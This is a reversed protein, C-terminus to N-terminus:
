DIEGDRLGTPLAAPRECSSSLAITKGQAATDLSAQMIDLVHYAMEGSARHDRKSAIASAMDAVGIGRSNTNYSFALPVPSWDGRGIKIKVEGGFTNPDPVSISGKTGYVEVFPLHTGFVDFSMILTGLPGSAFELASTIHTPTEVNVVKGYKKASTITRTKHTARAFGAVKKVPGLLNVLATLYYPGMDFMPGGGVEYYFEPDPHWSEHGPCTMFATAGLPTGIWGDDILKRATQIGAGLFTDPAAGVRLKKSKAASLIKKGEERTIAFPKEHYTHKGAKLAALAVATHSKPVTLNLVIDINKHALLQEVTCAIPLAPEGPLKWEAKYKAKIEEIKAKPRSVDLDALAVLELNRFRYASQIYIGSINGTGIIGIRTKSMKAGSHLPGIKITPWFVEGMENRYIAITFFRVQRAAKM